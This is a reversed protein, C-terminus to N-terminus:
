VLHLPLLIIATTGKGEESEFALEGDHEKICKLAIALGMGNGVDPPKTTFFPDTIRDKIDSRIGRGTDKIRIEVTTKSTNADILIVGEDSISEIANQLINIFAIHLDARNGAVFYHGQEIHNRVDIDGTQSKLVELCDNLTKGADSIGIAKNRSINFENLVSVIWAARRVGEDSFKLLESVQHRLKTPMEKSLKKIGELSGQIFNLPNNIEHAVGSALSVISAMKESQVLKLQTQELEHYSQKLDDRQSSIQNKAKSTLQHSRWLVVILLLLLVAIVIIANRLVNAKEVDKKMALMAAENAFQLSDKELQFEYEASLLAIKETQTKNELSDSMQKFLVHYEYAAKYNGLAREVKSLGEAAFRINEKIDTEQSLGLGKTLYVKATTWEKKDMYIDSLTLMPYATYAKVGMAEFIALSRFGYTLAKDYQGMRKHVLALNNNLGAEGVKYNLEEELDLSQHYYELAMEYDGKLDHVMAINNYTNALMKKDDAILELAELYYKLAEDLNGQLRHIDGIYNLSATIEKQTGSARGVTLARLYYTLAEEYRSLRVNIAGLNNLGEAIGKQYEIEESNQLVQQFHKEATKFHSLTLNIWAIQTLADIEGQKYGLKVALETAQNAYIMTNVSDSNRYEAALQVYIDVQQTGISLTELVLRLSDILKENQATGPYSLFIGLILSAISRKLAIGLGNYVETNTKEPLFIIYRHASFGM